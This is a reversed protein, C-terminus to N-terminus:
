SKLINPYYASRLTKREMQYKLIKNKALDEKTKTKTQCMAYSKKCKAFGSNFISRLCKLFKENGKLELSLGDKLTLDSLCLYFLHAEYLNEGGMSNLFCHLKTKLLVPIISRHICDQGDSQSSASSRSTSLVM